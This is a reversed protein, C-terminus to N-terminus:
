YNDVSFDSISNISVTMTPNSGHFNLKLIKFSSNTFSSKITINITDHVYNVLDTSAAM